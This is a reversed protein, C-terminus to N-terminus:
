PINSILMIHTEKNVIEISFKSTQLGSKATSTVTIRYLLMTLM